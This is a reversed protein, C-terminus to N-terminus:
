WGRCDMHEARSVACDGAFLELHHLVNSPTYDLGPLGMVLNVILAVVKPKKLPGGM